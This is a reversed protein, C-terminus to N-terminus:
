AILRPTELGTFRKEELLKALACGNAHPLCSNAESQPAAYLTFIGSQRIASPTRSVEGGEHFPTNITLRAASRM